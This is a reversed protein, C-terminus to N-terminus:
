RKVQTAYVYIDDNMTQGAPPTLKAQMHRPLELVIGEITVTEGKQRSSPETAPLVFLTRDGAKAFFGHEKAMGEVRVGSLTVHRGVLDEDGRAIDALDTMAPATTGSTGVPKESSGADIVMAVSNNGGVVRSAVLVPRKSIEIEVGEDLGLWGWEKEFDAEVFRKVEGTVTVRDDDRVLAALPTPVYVLIEGDLDGWNPEDITFLRPGFVEEVEADISVTKGVYMSPNDELQDLKVRRGQFDADVAPASSSPTRTTSSRVSATASRGKQWKKWSADAAPDVSFPKAMGSADFVRLTGRELDTGPVDKSLVVTKTRQAIKKAQEEPYVFQHGYISGPYFWAALAPPVGEDTPNFKVVVDAKAEPRKTPVAMTTTVTEGSEKLIQVHHRNTDSDMLQFVYTGPRLTVGPVMVPETFKLTTRENWQDSGAIAAGGVAVSATLAVASSWMM